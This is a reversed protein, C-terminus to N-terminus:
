RPLPGLAATGCLATVTYTQDQGTLRVFGKHIATIAETHIPASHAGPLEVRPVVLSFTTAGQDRDPVLVVTVITGLGPVDIVSVVDKRFTLAQHSDRYTLIIPGATPTPGVDFGEPFYSVSLHDAHLNYQNPTPTQQTPDPAAQAPTAV